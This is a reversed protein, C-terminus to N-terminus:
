KTPAAQKGDPTVIVSSTAAKPAPRAMGGGPLEPGPRVTVDVRRSDPPPVKMRNQPSPPMAGAPGVTWTMEDYGLEQSRSPRNMFHITLAQGPPVDYSWVQEGTSTNMLTVTQPVHPTSKYTYKEGEMCGGVGVVVMGVGLAALAGIIRSRHGM